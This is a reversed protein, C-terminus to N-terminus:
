AVSRVQADAFIRKAGSKTSYLQSIEPEPGLVPLGAASTYLNFLCVCLHDLVCKYRIEIRQRCNLVVLWLLFICARCQLMWGGLQDAVALDDQSVVGPMIYAERGATLHRIREVTRPSYLLVSSLAMRHRSFTGAQEPTVFHVREMAGEGGQGMALLSGYYEQVEDEM